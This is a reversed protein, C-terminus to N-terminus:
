PDLPDASDRHLSLRTPKFEVLTASVRQITVWPEYGLEDRCRQAFEPTTLDRSQSPHTAILVPRNSPIGYSFILRSVNRLNTTTHRAHPDILVAHKPIALRETLYRKMEIAEAYPTRSPWVHGGSVVLLPARRQRYLDAALHCNLVGLPSLRRGAIKPGNGPVLIVPNPFDGWNIQSIHRVAAANKGQDLPEYRAAEDRGTLELLLTAFTLAPEFFLADDSLRQRTLRLAMEIARGYDGSEPDYTLSDIAPYRPAHALLYHHLITNLGQAADRWGQSVLAGDDLQEYRAFVGSPRLPAAIMAALDSNKRALTALQEAIQDTNNASWRLVRDLEKHSVSPQQALRDLQARRETAIRRFLPTRRLTAAIGPRSRLQTLLYFNKRQLIETSSELRGGDRQEPSRVHSAPPPQLPIREGSSCAILLVLCTLGHRPSVM